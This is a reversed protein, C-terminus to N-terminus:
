PRSSRRWGRWLPYAPKLRSIGTPRRSVGAQPRPDRRQPCRVAEPFRSPVADGMRALRFLGPSCSCGHLHLRRRRCQPRLAGVPQHRSPAAHLDLPLNRTGLLLRVERVIRRPLNCLLRFLVNDRLPILFKGIKEGPTLESYPRVELKKVTWARCNWAPHLYSAAGPKMVRIIEDFAKEVKPIHELADFSFLFDVSNSTVPLDRGDAEIIRLQPGYIKKALAVASDAYEFGEWNPHAIHLHGLGCGIEVVSGDDPVKLVEIYRKALDLQPM